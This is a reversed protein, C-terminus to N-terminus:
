GPVAGLQEPTNINQWDYRLPEPIVPNDIKPHLAADGIRLNGEYFQQEFLQSARFDYWAFLPEPHRNGRLRPVRGWCGARRGSLLWRIAEATIHPMDCAILIWTVMPQWRGAALIGNLPGAVGPVDPLRVTGKLKDPLTGSGSVVLGGVLPRLTETTKELWTINNEDKILHKPRGMRSSKGGILICGWVPNQLVLTDLKEVLCDIFGQMALDDGGTWVLGQQVSKERNCINIQQVPFTPETDVFVLDYLKALSLISYQNRCEARKLFTCCLLRDELAPMLRQIFDRRQRETGGSLQFVPLSEEVIM